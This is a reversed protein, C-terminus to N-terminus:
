IRPWFNQATTRRRDAVVRWEGRPLQDESRRERDPPDGDHHIPALSQITERFSRFIDRLADAAVM